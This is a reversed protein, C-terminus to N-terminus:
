GPDHRGLEHRVRGDQLHEDVLVLGVVRGLQGQHELVARAIVGAVGVEDEVLGLLEGGAGALADALAEGV